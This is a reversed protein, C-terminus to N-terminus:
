PTRVTTQNKHGECTFSGGFSLTALIAIALLTRWRM